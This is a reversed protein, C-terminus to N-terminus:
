KSMGEKGMAEKGMSYTGSCTWESTSDSHREGTCGGSANVGKLKGTGNHAKWKNTAPKAIDTPASGEYTYYIMDGSDTTVNLRGHNTYDAKWVEQFETFAGSKESLGDGPTTTCTGQLIVYSHGPVDGVDFKQTADAKCHWKTDLKSQAMAASGLVGCCLAVFLLQRM